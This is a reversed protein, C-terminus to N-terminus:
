NIARCKPLKWVNQSRFDQANVRAPLEDCSSDSCRQLRRDKTAGQALLQWYWLLRGDGWFCALVGDGVDCRGAGGRRRGGWGGM